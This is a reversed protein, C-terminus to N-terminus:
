NDELLAMKLIDEQTASAADLFGKNRGEHMVMIRNCLTLLEKHESSVIIIAHGDNSLQKILQYIEYKANVDIGRTPEDLILLDVNRALWRSLIVKQQNGGSLNRVLTKLSPTKIKLKDIYTNSISYAESYNIGLLSSLSQYMAISINEAINLIPFIGDRRREEPLYGMGCTIAQRPNKIDIEKNRFIIKGSDRKLIGFIANVLETRRSGVLGGIGFIEGEYVDFSIDHLINKCSINKVSLIIDPKVDRSEREMVRAERNAMYEIIKEITLNKTSNVHVVNGDRMITMRDAIIKLEELRHSIFIISKGDNKLKRIIEFLIDVEKETLSSTPEDLILLRPNKLLARAIQVLQQYAVSLSGVKERADISVGLESLLKNAEQETKKWDIFGLHNKVESGLFLNEMVTLNSVITIEQPVMAIGFTNAEDPSHIQCKEGNLFVAGSDLKYNGILMNMLTSKGAGNEGILAHVEGKDVSFTVNKIAKVGPFNKVVDKMELLSISMIRGRKMAMM